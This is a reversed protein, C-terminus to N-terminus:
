ANKQKKRALIFLFLVFAFALINFFVLHGDPIDLRFTNSPANSLSSYFDKEESSLVNPNLSNGVAALEIKARLTDYKQKKTNFFYWEIFNSLPYTGPEYPEILYEFSKSGFVKGSQSRNSNINTSTLNIALAKSPKIVPEPVASINGEGKVSFTYIVGKGTESQKQSISETLSFDGVSVKSKLPHEPLPKVIITKPQSYYTKFDKIANSGFFVPKKAIKYKVMKLALQPIVIKEPTLPYFTSEYFKLQKYYKGNMEVYSEAVQELSTKEEWCSNPKAKKLIEIYQEPLNHFDLTKGSNVEIYFAIEMKFGEGVFVQTKDVTVAFFADEKVDIFERPKRNTEGFFDAMPDYAFTRVQNKPPESVTITTGSHSLENDNVKIKFPKLKFKGTKVPQYNQTITQSRTIQNGIINMSNSQSQGVKRFGDIDPFQGLKVINENQSSVSIQFYNNMTLDSGGLSINFQCFAFSQSLFFFLQLFVVKKTLKQM